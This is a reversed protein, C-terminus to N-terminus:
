LDERRLYLTALPPITLSISHERQHHHHAHSYIDGGNGVNSGRYFHSDTNLVEHYRGPRGVGIRYDYRPVPTFNSVVIIENGHEDRRAFAFVSNEHDDVV